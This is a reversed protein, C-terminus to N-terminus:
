RPNEVQPRVWSCAWILAILWGLGTWGLFMNVIAIPGIQHHNRRGAVFIPLFYGAILLPVIIAEM